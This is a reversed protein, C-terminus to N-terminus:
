EATNNSRQMRNTSIANCIAGLWRDKELKFWFRKTSSLPLQWKNVFQECHHTTVQWTEKGTYEWIHSHHINQKKKKISRNLSPYWLKFKINVQIDNIGWLTSRVLRWYITCKLICPATIFILAPTKFTRVIQLVCTHSWAFSYRM